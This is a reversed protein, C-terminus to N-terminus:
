PLIRCSKGSRGRPVDIGLEGLVKVPVAGQLKAFAQLAARGRALAQQGEEGTSPLRLILTRDDKQCVQFDFLGATEELVTSLALPLLAVSRGNAGAVRLTDDRRGQVDIVPLACGCPCAEGTFMLHDGLDYRILPQVTNGLHTLWVSASPEGAPVPRQRDDVPELLVWDSNLHMRGERCEWGMPLFESAGYSNRVSAGLQQEIRRRAANGLTEGGTWVERLAPLRLRHSDVEQALMAAVSPYTSLLSPSFAELQALLSDLSQLISFSQVSAAMWPQLRRLREVTVYSAFHGDTVGVFAFREGLCLPDLMRQALSATHRRQAELADYLAMCRADQVFVGPSGSTGSSEWVLYRGRYPEGINKREAIFARLPDLRLDPDCVWDEFREMLERRCVPGVDLLAEPGSPMGKFHERYFPSRERASALLAGLRQRQLAAIVDPRAMTASAVEWTASGFQWADFLTTM